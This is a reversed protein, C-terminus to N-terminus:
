AQPRCTELSPEPPRVDEAEADNRLIGRALRYLRRNNSQMISRIAAEDRALARAVLAADAAGPAAIKPIPAHRM